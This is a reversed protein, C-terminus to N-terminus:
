WRVIRWVCWVDLWGCDGKAVCIHIESTSKGSSTGSSTAVECKRQGVCCLKEINWSIALIHAERSVVLPSFIQKIISWCSMTCVTICVTDSSGYITMKGPIGVCVNFYSSYVTTTINYTHGLYWVDRLIVAQRSARTRIRTLLLWVYHQTQDSTCTTSICQCILHVTFWNVFLHVNM